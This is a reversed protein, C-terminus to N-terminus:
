QYITAKKNHILKVNMSVQTLERDSGFKMNPNSFGAYNTNYLERKVADHDTTGAREIAQAAIMVGDYYIEIFVNTELNKYEQMAHVRTELDQSSGIKTITYYVGEAYGSDILENAELADGGVIPMDGMGLEGRQKFAKIGGGAYMPTFIATAGSEKVKTLETKFDSQQQNTGQVLTIEGGLEKFRKVFVQQLGEGYDNQVYLVAVKRQNLDNYMFDAAAVGQVSDSPYARFVNDGISTLKPASAGLLIVPVNNATAIPVGPGASASCIPGLVLDVNDATILKTMADVGKASCQDDVVVLQLMRGNVGGKANIDQVALTAGAIANQGYSAAEGSMPAIFGLKIPDKDQTTQVANGTGQNTATNQTSTNTATGPTCGTIVFVAALIIIAAFLINQKTRQM